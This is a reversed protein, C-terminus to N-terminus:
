VEAEAFIRSVDGGWARDHRALWREAQTLGSAAIEELSPAAGEGTAVTLSTASDSIDAALTSTANNTFLQAM